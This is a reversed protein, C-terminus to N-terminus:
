AVNLQCLTSTEAFRGIVSLIDVTSKIDRADHLEVSCNLKKLEESLLALISSKGVGSRSKIQIVRPEKHNSTIYEIIQNVLPKRGVFFEPAAPLRYDTWDKGIILGRQIVRYNLMATNKEKGCVFRLGRLEKINELKNLLVEDNILNLSSDFVM